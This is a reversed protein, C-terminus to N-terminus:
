GNVKGSLSARLPAPQALGGDASGAAARLRWAARIRSGHVKTGRRRGSREHNPRAKRALAPIAQRFGWGSGGACDVTAFSGPTRPSSPATPPPASPGSVSLAPPPPVPMAVPESPPLFSGEGGGSESSPSPCPWPPSEPSNPLPLPPVPPLPAVEPPPAPRPPTVGGAPPPPTPPEVSSGPPSAPAPPESGSPRSPSTSSHPEHPSTRARPPVGQAPAIGLSAASTEQQWADHPAQLSRMTRPSRTPLAHSLQRASAHPSASRAQLASKGSVITRTPPRAPWAPRM